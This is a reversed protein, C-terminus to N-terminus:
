EGDERGEVEVARARRVSGEVCRVRGSPRAAGGLLARRQEAKDLRGETVLEHGGETRV